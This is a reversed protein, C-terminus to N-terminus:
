AKDGEAGLPRGAITKRCEGAPVRKATRLGLVMKEM